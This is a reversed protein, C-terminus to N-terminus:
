DGRFKMGIPARLGSAVCRLRRLTTDKVVGSHKRTAQLHTADRRFGTKQEVRQGYMRCVILLMSDHGLTHRQNGTGRRPYAGLQRPNKCCLAMAQRQHGSSHIPQPRQRIFDAGGASGRGDHNRAIELLAVGAVPYSGHQGFVAHLDFVDDVIGPEAQEALRDYQVARGLEANDVDVDARQGIQRQPKGILQDTM